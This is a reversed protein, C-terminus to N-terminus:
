AQGAIRDPNGRKSRLVTEMAREAKRLGAELESESITLPPLFKLVQDSAGATEIILKERFCQERFENAIEPMARSEIGLALGRGRVEFAAEPFRSAMRQLFDRVRHSKKRIAGSFNTDRWYLNIARTAAVFALNNGRFTGNHQGPDWEDLEPRLLVLSMPLGYAGISKSLLVIDPRIGAEEFSFFTGTRGCGMQIDDVIMLVDFDDCIKRISRLWASRAVNIGGEGQVTELIVAAPLGVGSSADELYKRLLVSSDEVGDVYRDYPMFAVNTNGSYIDEKHYENGTVALAGLTMGHFGNTFSIIGSRQKVKRALKLAAEVANTGTPGCFQMKYDLQRPELIHRSFTDIFENKAVSAMDLGNVLGDAQLHDLISQKLLPNNHGYNLSGAGALFDIYEEDQDTWLRAGQARKVVIPFARSYSRVESELEHSPNNDTM